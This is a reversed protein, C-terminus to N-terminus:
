IGATSVIGRAERVATDHAAPTRAVWISGRLQEFSRLAWGMWTAHNSSIAPSITARRNPGDEGPHGVSPHAM